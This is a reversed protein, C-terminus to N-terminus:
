NRCNLGTGCQHNRKSQPAANFIGGHRKIVVQTIDRVINILVAHGQQEVFLYVKSNIPTVSVLPCRFTRIVDHRPVFLKHSRTTAFYLCSSSANQSRDATYTCHTHTNPDAVHVFPYASFLQSAVIKLKPLLLCLNDLLLCLCPEPFM